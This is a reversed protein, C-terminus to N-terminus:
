RGLTEIAKWQRATLPVVSLRGQKVLPSTQFVPLAKLKALPVPHGLPRVPHLAVRPPADPSSTAATVEAEGVVAKEKGTHYVFVRDGKKMARLHIVAQPNTVGDWQTEEERVLRDWSYESPETKVLWM